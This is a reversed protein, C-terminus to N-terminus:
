DIWGFEGYLVGHKIASFAQVYYDITKEPLVDLSCWRLEECKGEECNRVEGRYRHCTFFFDLREHDGCNRHMVHALTLDKPAIEIGIEERAERRMAESLTEGGDVHGAPLGYEGDKFGTNKRKLLLGEGRANQLVLYVSAIMTFTHEM